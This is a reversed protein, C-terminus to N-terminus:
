RSRDGRIPCQRRHSRDRPFSISDPGKRDVEFVFRTQHHRNNKEFVYDVCGVIVPAMMFRNQETAARDFDVDDKSMHFVHLQTVDQGPFVATGALFENESKLKAQDCAGWGKQVEDRTEGRTIFEGVISAFRAPKRGANKLQFKVSVFAEGNVLFLDRAPDAGAVFVWPRQDAEMTDLQGQMVGLQGQSVSYAFIAVLLTVASFFAIAVNAFATLRTAHDPHPGVVDWVILVLVALWLSTHHDDRPAPRTSL